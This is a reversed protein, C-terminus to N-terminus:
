ELELELVWPGYGLKYLFFLGFWGKKYSSEEQRIQLYVRVGMFGYVWLSMYEDVCVGM